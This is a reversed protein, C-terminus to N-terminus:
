LSQAEQDKVYPTLPERKYPGFRGWGSHWTKGYIKDLHAKDRKQKRAYEERGPAMKIDHMEDPYMTGGTATELLGIGADLRSAQNYLDGEFNARVGWLGANKTMSDMRDGLGQRKLKMPYLLKRRARRRLFVILIISALVALIVWVFTPVGFMPKSTSTSATSPTTTSSPTVKGAAIAKQQAQKLTDDFSSSM